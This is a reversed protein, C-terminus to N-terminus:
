SPRPMWSARWFRYCETTAMVLVGQLHLCWSGRFCQYGGVVSSPMVVWFVVQIMMATFAEFSANCVQTRLGECCDHKFSLDEPSHCWLPNHYSVSTECTWASEMKLTFHGPYSFNAYIYVWVLSSHVTM